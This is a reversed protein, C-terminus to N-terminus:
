KWYLIKQDEMNLQNINKGINEDEYIHLKVNATTFYGYWVFVNIICSEPYIIDM